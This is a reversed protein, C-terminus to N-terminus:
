AAFLELQESPRLESPCYVLEEMAEYTARPTSITGDFQDVTVEGCFKRVERRLEEYLGQYDTMADERM